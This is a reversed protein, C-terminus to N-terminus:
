GDATLSVIEMAQQAITCPKAVSMSSPVRARVTPIGRARCLCTALSTIPVNVLKNILSRMHDLPLASFGTKSALKATEKSLSALRRHHSQRLSPVLSVSYGLRVLRVSRLIDIAPDGVSSFPRAGRCAGQGSALLDIDVYNGSSPQSSAITDLASRLCALTGDKLSAAVADNAAQWYQLAEALVGHGAATLVIRRARADKEDQRIELLGRRELPKLNKTTTTRDM